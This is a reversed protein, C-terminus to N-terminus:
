GHRARKNWRGKQYTSTDRTRSQGQLRGLNVYGEGGASGPKSPDHEEVWAQRCNPCTPRGRTKWARICDAHFNAGCTGRCYTLIQPGSGSGLSDFCIPCDSDEELPRRPAYGPDEDPAGEGRKLQAYNQRVSENALTGGGVRRNELMQMMDSLESPVYARQYSRPDHKDLGIVKLTVFMIHKCLDKKRVFDPCTCTPIEGIQVTYVNGTSGLVVFDCSAESTQNREVLYLRQTEARELREFLKAPCSARYRLARKEPQQRPKSPSATSASAGPPPPKTTAKTEGECEGGSSAVESSFDKPMIV